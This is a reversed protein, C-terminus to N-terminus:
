FGGMRILFFDTGHSSGIIGAAYVTNDKVSPSSHGRGIGDISWLIKPGKEPWTRLLGTENTKGDRFPGRWQPWDSAGTLAALVAMLSFLLLSIAGARSFIIKLM